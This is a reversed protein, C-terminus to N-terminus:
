SGLAGKVADLLERLLYPKILCPAAEPLSEVQDKYAPNGTVFLFRGRLQPFNQLLYEYVRQGNHPMSVDCIIFDIARTSIAEVAERPAAALVVQYGNLELADKCFDRIGEEDDVVLVVPKESEPM